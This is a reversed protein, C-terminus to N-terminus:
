WSILLKVISYFRPQRRKGQMNERLHTVLARSGRRIIEDKLDEDLPNGEIGLMELKHLYGIENPLSQINNDFLLLAKLNVLMGIEEPIERLQNNSADLHGLNRLRGLSPHLRTLRNNDIFLKGLFMYDCFLSPSLARLGQGSLDMADWDQRRIEMDTTARNREEDGGIRPSHEPSVEVPGKSM